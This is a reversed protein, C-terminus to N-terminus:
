AEALRSRQEEILFDFCALLKAVDESDISPFCAVRFQNEEVGRYREFDVVGHEHMVDLIEQIDIWEALNITVGVPSRHEPNKVFAEAYDREAIWKYILDSSAKSRAATAQMGGIENMWKVQANLMAITAISPTNFTQDKVSQEAALQLNLVDPVWRESTLKKIRALARPSAIAVWTGAEASFCKQTSFYYFDINRVDFEYAGAISTGDVVTLADYQEGFRRIPAIAGTTTENHTYIYTDIDPREECEVITGWDSTIVETEIWPIKSVAETCLHSFAGLQVTQAKKEVLCFGITDFIQSAGGNGLLIEYGEPLNFLQRLGARAEKVLNIVPAKRHSTGLPAALIADIQAQRVKSPGSAFRGDNPIIEEPLKSM